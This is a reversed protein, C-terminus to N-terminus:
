GGKVREGETERVVRETPAHLDAAGRKTELDKAADDTQSDKSQHDETLWRQINEDGEEEVLSWSM